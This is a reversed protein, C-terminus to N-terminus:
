RLREAFLNADDIVEGDLPRYFEDSDIRHSREVKGNLCPINVHGTGWTSSAGTSCRVSNKAM